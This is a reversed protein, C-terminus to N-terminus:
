VRDGRPDATKGGDDARHTLMAALKAGAGLRWSWAIEGDM